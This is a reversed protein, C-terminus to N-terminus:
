VRLYPNVILDRDTNSKLSPMKYHRCRRGTGQEIEMRQLVRAGRITEGHTPKEYGIEKLIDTCTMYYVHNEEDTHGWQFRDLIMEELPEIQEHKQNRRIVKEETEKDLYPTEGAKWMDYVARWVQQMDLGHDLDIEETLQITWFRRNGTKDILFKADNVTAAFVTTRPWKSPKIAYPLRVVDQSATLYSKLKAIDARRFTGDLEGLEVIWHKAAAIVSDKNSPDLIHGELVL